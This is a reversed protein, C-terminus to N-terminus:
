GRPWRLFRDTAYGVLAIRGQERQHGSPWEAAKRPPMCLPQPRAQLEKAQIISELGVQAFTGVVLAGCCFLWTERHRPAM